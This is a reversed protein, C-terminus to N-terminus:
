LRIKRLQQELDGLIKNCDAILHFSDSNASHDKIKNVERIAYAPDLVCIIESEEFQVNNQREESFDEILIAVVDECSCNPGYISSSIPALATIDATQCSDPEL